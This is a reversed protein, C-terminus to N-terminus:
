SFCSSIIGSASSLLIKQPLIHSWPVWCLSFAFHSKLIIIMIIKSKLMKACATRVASLKRKPSDCSTVLTWSTEKVNRSSEKPDTSNGVFSNETCNWCEGRYGTDRDM